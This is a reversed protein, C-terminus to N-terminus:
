ILCDKVERMRVGINKLRTPFRSWEDVLIGVLGMDITSVWYSHDNVHISTTKVHALRIIGIQSLSSLLEVYIKYLFDIGM